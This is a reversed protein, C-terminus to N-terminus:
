LCLKSKSQGALLHLCNITIGEAKWGDLVQDVNLAISQGQWLVNAVLVGNWRTIQLLMFPPAMQSSKQTSKQIAHNSQRSLQRELGAVITKFKEVEATLQSITVEVETSQHTQESQIFELKSHYFDLSKQFGNLSAETEDVRSSLAQQLSLYEPIASKFSDMLGSASDDTTEIDANDQTTVSGTSDPVGSNTITETETGAELAAVFQLPDTITAKVDNVGIMGLRLAFVLAVIILFVCAMIIMVKKSPRSLTPLNPQDTM